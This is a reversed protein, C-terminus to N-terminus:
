GGWILWGILVGLGFTVVGLVVIPVQYDQEVPPSMDLYGDPLVIKTVPEPYQIRGHTYPDRSPRPASSNNM